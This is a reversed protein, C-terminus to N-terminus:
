SEHLYVFAYIVTNTVRELQRAWEKAVVIPKPYDDGIKIGKLDSANLTWPVHIKKNEIRCLEPVWMRIYEGNEDYDIGIILSHTM